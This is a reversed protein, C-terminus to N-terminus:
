SVKVMTVRMADFLNVPISIKSFIKPISPKWGFMRALQFLILALPVKKTPYTIDVVKLGAIRAMERISNPTFFWLHQPPTMLRWNKNMMRSLKSSFDGTTLIFVGNKNLLDASLNIASQPEELHEIVDFMTIADYRRDTDVNQDNFEGRVVGQLGSEICHAVASECLEIGSVSSFSKAAVKLFVGYACGIEFLSDLNSTYKKLHELEDKFHNQLSNATDLYNSYGDIHGGNFYDETYYESPNFEPAIASGVGCNDCKFIECSNKTYSFLLNGKVCIPCSKRQLKNKM